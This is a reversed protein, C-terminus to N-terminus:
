TVMYNPFGSRATAELRSTPLTATLWNTRTNYATGRDPWNSGDPQSSFTWIASVEGDPWIHLRASESGNTQLDYQTNGTIEETLRSRQAPPVSPMTTQQEFGTRPAPKLVPKMLSAPVVPKNALRRVKTAHSQASMSSASGLVILFAFLLSFQKM